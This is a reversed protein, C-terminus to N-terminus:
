EDQCTLLWRRRQQTGFASLLTRRFTAVFGRTSLQPCNRHAFSCLRSFTNMYLEHMVTIFKGLMNRLEVNKTNGKSVKRKCV